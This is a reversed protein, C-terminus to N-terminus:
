PRTLALQSADNLLGQAEVASLGIRERGSALLPSQRLIEEMNVVVDNSLVLLTIV